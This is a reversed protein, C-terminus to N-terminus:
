FGRLVQIKQYISVRKGQTCSVSVGTVDGTATGTAGSSVECTYGPPNQSVSVDYGSGHAVTDVITWNPSDESVVVSDGGNTLTVSGSLGTM